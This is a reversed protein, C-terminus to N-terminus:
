MEVGIKGEIFVSLNNDSDIVGTEGNDVVDSDDFPEITSLM